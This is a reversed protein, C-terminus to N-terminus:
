PAAEEREGGAAEEREAGVSHLYAVVDWTESESLVPKWSPMPTGPKGSRVTAFARAPTTRSRWSPDRFDTPSPILSGRRPGRGDAREGHCIACHRLFLERGRARAQPSDFDPPVGVEGKECGSLALLM